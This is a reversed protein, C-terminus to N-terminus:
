LIHELLRMIVTVDGDLLNNKMTSTIDYLHRDNDEPCLDKYQRFAYQIVEHEADRRAVEEGFYKPIKRTNDGNRGM